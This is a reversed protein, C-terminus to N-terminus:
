SRRRRVINDYLAKRGIRRCSITHIYTARVSPSFAETDVLFVEFFLDAHLYSPNRVFCSSLQLALNVGDQM